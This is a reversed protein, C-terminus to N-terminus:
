SAIRTTNEEWYKRAVSCSRTKRAPAPDLRHLGINAIHIAEPLNAKYTEGTERLFERVQIAAFVINYPIALDISSSSMELRLSIPHASPSKTSSLSHLAIGQRFPPHLSTLLHFFNVHSPSTIAVCYSLDNDDSSVLYNVAGLHDLIVVQDPDYEMVTSGNQLPMDPISIYAVTHMTEPLPRVAARCRRPDRVLFGISGFSWIWCGVAPMNETLLNTEM